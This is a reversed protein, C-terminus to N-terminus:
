TARIHSPLLWNYSLLLRQFCPKGDSQQEAKGEAAEARKHEAEAIKYEADAKKYEAQAREYELWTSVQKGIGM